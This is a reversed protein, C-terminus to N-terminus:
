LREPYPLCLWTLLMDSPLSFGDLSGSTRLRPHTDSDNLPSKFCEPAKVWSESIINNPELTPGLMQM